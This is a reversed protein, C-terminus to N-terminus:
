LLNILGTAVITERRKARSSVTLNKSHAQGRASETPTNERTAAAGASRRVEGLPLPSGCELLQRVAVRGQAFARSRQVREWVRNPFARPLSVRNRLRPHEAPPSACPPQWCASVGGERFLTEGAAANGFM